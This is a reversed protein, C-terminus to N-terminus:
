CPTILGHDVHISLRDFPDPGWKGPKPALFPNGTRRPFISATPQHSAFDKQLETRHKWRSHKAAATASPLALTTAASARSRKTRQMALTCRGQLVGYYWSALVLCLTRALPGIGLNDFARRDKAVRHSGVNRAM